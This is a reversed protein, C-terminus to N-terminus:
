NYPGLIQSKIQLPSSAPTSPISSSAPLVTPQAVPDQTLDIVQSSAPAPAPAPPIPALSMITVFHEVSFIRLQPLGLDDIVKKYAARENRLGRVESRFHHHYKHGLTWLPSRNRVVTTAISGNRIDRSLREELHRRDAHRERFDRVM